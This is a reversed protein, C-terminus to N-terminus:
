QIQVPKISIHKKEILFKLVEDICQDPGDIHTKLRVEPKIPPHYPSSVGTFEPIEGRRALKYHGKVDRRECEEIPCDVYIEVFQDPDLISRVNDRDEQFPSIVAVIIIIGADAFLKSIEGIRRINEKRGEKSFDLDSNIGKRIQDGDLIYVLLNNQFLRAQLKNALTTKGSCPLGTFWLVSGKQSLTKAKNQHPNNISSSLSSM